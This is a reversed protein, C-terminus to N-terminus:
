NKELLFGKIKRELKDLILPKIGAKKKKIHKIIKPDGSLEDDSIEDLIEYVFKKNKFFIGTLSEALPPRIFVLCFLKGAIKSGGYQSKDHYIDVLKKAFEEPSEIKLENNNVALLLENAFDGFGEIEAATSTSEIYTKAIQTVLARNNPYSEVLDRALDPNDAAIDVLNSEFESDESDRVELFSKVIEVIGDIEIPDM